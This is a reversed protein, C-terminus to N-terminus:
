MGPSLALRQQMMGSRQLHQAYELHWAYYWVHNHTLSIAQSVAMDTDGNNCIDVDYTSLAKERKRRIENYRASSSRLSNELNRRYRELRDKRTLRRDTIRSLDYDLTKAMSKAESVSAGNRALAGFAAGAARVIQRTTPPPAGDGGASAPMYHWPHGDDWTNAHSTSM